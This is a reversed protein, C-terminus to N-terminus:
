VTQRRAEAKTAGTHAMIMEDVQDGVPLIPNLNAQADQFIMSIEQGRLNHLEDNSMELVDRGEYLIRGGDITGPQQILKLISLGLTTKGCGSEGVIGLVGGRELKLSVGDVAKLVARNRDHYTTHLNQIELITESM